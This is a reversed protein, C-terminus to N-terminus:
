EAGRGSRGLDALEPRGGVGRCVATQYQFGDNLTTYLSLCSRGM